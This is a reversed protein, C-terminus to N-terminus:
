IREISVIRENKFYSNVRKCQSPTLYISKCPFGKRSAKYLYLDQVLWEEPSEHDFMKKGVEKAMRIEIKGGYCGNITVKTTEM